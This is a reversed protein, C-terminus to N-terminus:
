PRPRQARKASALAIEAALAANEVVLARNVQQTRGESAEHLHALVFPTVAQGSVGAGDALALAKAVLHEVETAELGGMHPRAVVVAGGGLEWHLEAVRAAEGATEVRASVPPGGDPAYFLPLEDTRWGLVPVGLAELLEATAPVDLLSKVGSCVVCVPARALAALDGSVDPRTQWDRHVGGLGGTAFVRIGAARCVALTAGVTTAGLAGQACCAALDRAGVKRAEPSRAFRELTRDDLGVRVEGDVVGTTAPLAGGDRIRQESERAVESGVGHPFGHAVLTTELAVVPRGAALAAEVEPAVRLPTV